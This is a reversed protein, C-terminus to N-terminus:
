PLPPKSTMWAAFHRRAEAEVLEALLQRNREVLGRLAEGHVEHSLLSKATFRLLQRGRFDDVIVSELESDPVDPLTRIDDETTALEANPKDFVFREQAVLLLARLLAPERRALIRMAALWGLGDINLHLRDGCRASLMSLVAHKEEAHDFSMRWEREMAIASHVALSSEFEDGDGIWEVAPEWRGGWPLVLDFEHVGRRQLELGIFLHEQPTVAAPADLVIELGVGPWRKAGAAVIRAAQEIAWGFKIGIVILAPAGAPFDRNLHRSPWDLSEFVQDAILAEQADAQEAENLLPAETIILESPDVRLRSPAEPKLGLLEEPGRIVPVGSGPIVAFGAEGAVGAAVPQELIPDPESFTVTKSMPQKLVREWITQANKDLIKLSCVDV